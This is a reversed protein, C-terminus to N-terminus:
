VRAHKKPRLEDYELLNLWRRGEGRPEQENEELRAARRFYEKARAFLAPSHLACDNLLAATPDDIMAASSSRKSRKRRSAHSPGDSESGSSDGSSLEDVEDSTHDGAAPPQSLWLALFGALVTLTISDHYPHSPLFSELEELAFSASGAAILNITYEVFKDVQDLKYKQCHKIWEAQSRRRMEVDEEDDHDHDRMRGLVLAGVRWSAAM